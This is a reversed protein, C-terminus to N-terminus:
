NSVSCGTMPHAPRCPCAAALASPAPSSTLQTGAAGAAAPQRPAPLSIRLLLPDQCTCTCTWSCPSATSQRLSHSRNTVGACCVTSTSPWRPNHRLLRWGHSCVPLQMAGNASADHRWGETSQDHKKHRYSHQLAGAPCIAPLSLNTSWGAGLFWCPPQAHFRPCCCLLLWSSRVRFMSSRMMSHSDSKFPSPGAACLASVSWLLLVEPSHLWWLFCVACVALSAQALRCCSCVRM